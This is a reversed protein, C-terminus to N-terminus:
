AEGEKPPKSSLSDDWLLRKIKDLIPEKGQCSVNVTYITNGIKKKVSASFPNYERQNSEMDLFPPGNGCSDEWVYDVPDYSNGSEYDYDKLM